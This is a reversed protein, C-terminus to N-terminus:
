NGARSLWKRSETELIKDVQPIEDSHFWVIDWGKTVPKNQKVYCGQPKVMYYCTVLNGKKKKSAAYYEITTVYKNM